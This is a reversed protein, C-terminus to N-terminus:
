EWKLYHKLPAHEMHFVNSLCRCPKSAYEHPQLLYTDQPCQPRAAPIKQLEAGQQTGRVRKREKKRRVHSHLDKLSLKGRRGWPPVPLTM